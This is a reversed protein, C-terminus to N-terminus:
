GRIIAVIVDQLAQLGEASVFEYQGHLNEGGTFINATPLGKFNFVCGDMGGRFPQVDPEIGCDRYAKLAREMVYPHHDLVEKINKYQDSIEYRIRPRKYQSNIQDVVQAFIEKREQFKDPDHDRIIFVQHVQGLDGSQETLMFYGEYGDTKEPVQGKPLDNVIQAGLHLPNIANGKSSGPHVSKGEIWVEVQAANFTEGEIKGVRGSDPTYAFDAGFGEVDFRYAGLLGIEEDVVFAIRVKGHEIKPHDLLYEMAGIIGVMGAKDDAGLLTTGDSTILTQGEYDKLFPFEAVEMVIGEAENLVIDEGDYNEHVQPQINEANFDATDVHAIFGIVPFDKDTNAELTATVCARERDFDVESLGLEELEGAITELFDLQSKSSPFSDSHMDSRTNVKAYRIFRESLSESM